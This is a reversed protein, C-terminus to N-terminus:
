SKVVREVAAVYDSYINAADFKEEALRRSALCAADLRPLLSRLATALSEPNGATYTSGAAYERILEACEGELSSALALSAASYDAMKYPIGVFSDASMPIIGISCTNLLRTLEECGLYGHFRVRGSLGNKQVFRKLQEEACGAGALDLTAEPVLLLARLVTELDYTKGLGGIYVLALRSTEPSQMPPRPQALSIGHYFLRCDTAGLCRARKLYPASVATVLDANTMDARVSALTRAFLLPAMRRLFRPLLRYFTEPWADMVDVILKAKFHRALHRAVAGTALPPTSVILADPRPLSAELALKQWLRAYHSHSIIRALSINRKYPRTPILHVEIGQQEFISPVQRFAKATHSFSSTWYVVRWGARSFAQAMLWYRM